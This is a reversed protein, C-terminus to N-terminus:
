ALKLVLEMIHRVTRCCQELSVDRAYSYNRTYANWRAAM